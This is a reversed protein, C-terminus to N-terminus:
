CSIPINTLEESLIKVGTVSTRSIRMTRATASLSNGFSCRIVLKKKSTRVLKKYLALPVSSSDPRLLVELKLNVVNSAWEGVFLTM